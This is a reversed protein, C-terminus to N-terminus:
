NAPQTIESKPHFRLWAERLFVVAPLEVLSRGTLPGAVAKGTVPNWTSNSELDTLKGQDARFTAVRGDIERSYLRATLSSRDLVALVPRGEWDDPFAQSKSLVDFGWAKARIGNKVGLVLPVPSQNEVWQYETSTPGLLAVTSEPYHLTWTRWDTLVSPIITLSKGRLLGRKAEGLVQSWLSQTEQDYLVGSFDWMMGSIGFTLIRGNVDRSYVIGDFCNDCWTVAIPVGGLRDNLAERTPGTIRNIPYARSQGQITVGLVLENPNLADDADRVKLVPFETIPPYAVSFRMPTFDPDSEFRHLDPPPGARAHTAAPPEPAAPQPIERNLFVAAALTLGFIVWAAGRQRRSWGFPASMKM